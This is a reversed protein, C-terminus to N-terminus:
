ASVIERLRAAWADLAQTREDWYAHRDYVGAVSSDVHGLIREVVHRALQGVSVCSGLATACYVGPKFPGAFKPTYHADVSSLRM